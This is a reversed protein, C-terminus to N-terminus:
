SGNAGALPEICRPDDHQPNNVYTSVPYWEMEDAAFPRIWQAAARTSGTLWDEYGAPPVIVPMRDHISRLAETPETTVITCSEVADGGDARSRDWLGGFAFLAGNRLGIHFPQKAARGAAKQWEYYGHAPILCRRSRWPVRYAPKDAVTEGKANATNFRIPKGKAWFPLLPWRVMALERGDDTDRVIPVMTVRRGDGPAVNFLPGQPLSDLGRAIDFAALFAEADPTVNYRGCV